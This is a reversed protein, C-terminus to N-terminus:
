KEKKIVDQYIAIIRKAVAENTLQLEEIRKRGNTRGEFALAEKLLAVMEDLSKEDADWREHTKRPNRLIWHGPEDGFLYKVDAIDTALCPCNVAMAEKLAQPSGESHSPLAFLDCANMRLVCEARSLGKMEIIEINKPMKQSEHLSDNKTSIITRSKDLYSYDPQADAAISPDDTQGLAQEQASYPTTLQSDNDISQPNNMKPKSSNEKINEESNEINNEKLALASPELHTADLSSTELRAVADRLLAYNKRENSFAGGFLIYRKKADEGVPVDITWVGDTGHNKDLNFSMIGEQYFLRSHFQSNVIDYDIVSFGNKYQSEAVGINASLVGPAVINFTSGEPKIQYCENSSHTHGTFYMDYNQCIHKQIIPADFDALWTTDHHSLAVKIQCDAIHTISHIIQEQGMLIKNKDKKSDWCRWASNLLSFGVSVGNIDLILSSDFFGYQYNLGGISSYYKKEFEKFAIMRKVDDSCRENRILQTIDEETKLLADLGKESYQSDASRNVDHNGPCFVFREKPLNLREMLPNIIINRFIEFLAEAGGEYDKGGQNILDGTCVVVDIPEENHLPMIADIIKDFMKQSKLFESSGLHIDSLHLIRM